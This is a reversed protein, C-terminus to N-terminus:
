SRKWLLTSLRMWLGFRESRSFTLRALASASRDVAFSTFSSHHFIVVSNSFDSITKSPRGVLLGLDAGAGAWELRVGRRRPGMCVGPGLRSEFGCTPVSSCRARRSSRLHLTGWDVVGLPGLRGLSPFRGCSLGLRRRSDLSGTGRCLVEGTV